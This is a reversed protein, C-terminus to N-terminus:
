GYLWTYAYGRETLKGVHLTPAATFAVIVGCMAALIAHDTATWRRAGLPIRGKFIQGAAACIASLGLIVLTIAKASWGFRFGMVVAAYGSIGIGFMAGMIGRELRTDPESGEFIPTILLGPLMFLGLTATTYAITARDALRACLLGCALFFVAWLAVAQWSEVRTWIGAFPAPGPEVVPFMGESM